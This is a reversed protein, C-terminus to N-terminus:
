RDHRRQDRVFTVIDEGTEDQPWFDAQLTAITVVPAIGQMRALEDLSRAMWFAYSGSPLGHELAQILELQQLPPLAQAAKVLDALLTTM